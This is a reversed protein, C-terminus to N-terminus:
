SITTLDGKFPLVGGGRLQRELDDAAMPFAFFHGQCCDCGLSSLLNRQDTTEVGEAIVTKGLAHALDIVAAVIVGSAPDQGLKATYGRDIKVADIPFRQLYSLSSYGTGFDDLALRVGMRKLDELVVLAREGDEVYVSETMELTLLSPEHGTSELATEVTRCFDRGMLQHPSINVHLELQPQRWEKTIRHFDGCARELVWSGIDIVLDSQEAISILMLPPISGREPHNWRLLAEVGTIQGDSTRVIPQYGLSLEGRAAATRLDQELSARTETHLRERLDILQHRSGGARKAQYMAEDADHLIQDPVNDGLGAFAIGVSATVNVQADSLVFPAALANVIRQALTRAQSEDGLDECLVVFEDGSMRAVTDAPRLLGHLRAAVAILLEDGARHGYIDNVQKFRDLDIFLISIVKRLRRARLVAHELRQRLLIRNPLGTLADHLASNRFNESSDRLDERAQANLLYAAVVDALTQAAVMAEEDLDGPSERYLDLAGLRKEGHRLPFTFVAALGLELARPSFEPFREDVTLDPVSVAEGSHYADTCPGEGLETQLQEYLLADHDSAAIFHPDRGPSILTVGASSIPLVDVIREVLHDLIAQIPFDTVM